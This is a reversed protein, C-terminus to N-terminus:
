KKMKTTSLHFGNSIRVHHGRSNGGPIAITMCCLHGVHGKMNQAQNPAELSSVHRVQFEPETNAQVGTLM